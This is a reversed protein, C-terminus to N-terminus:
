TKGNSKASKRILSEWKNGDLGLEIGAAQGPTKGELATHPRLYDYYVRQGEIFASDTKKIARMVKSREKFTGHYREMRNNNVRGQIGIGSVHVANPFEKQAAPGYSPLGDTLLVRADTKAVTKADKFAERADAVTRGQSVHNALLFRTDGDMLHWLWVWQGRINVKTEDAHFVRSLEPHLTHAHAETSTAKNVHGARPPIDAREAHHPGDERM